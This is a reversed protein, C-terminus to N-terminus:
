SALVLWVELIYSSVITTQSSSQGTCTSYLRKKIELFIIQMEFKYSLPYFAIMVGFDVGSFWLFYGASALKSLM